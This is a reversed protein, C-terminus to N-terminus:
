YLLEQWRGGAKLEAQIRAWKEPGGAIESFAKILAAEMAKVGSVFIYTDPDRLLPWLSEAREELVKDLAVPDKLHPRPSLAQFAMYGESGFFSSLDNNTDNMYVLELGSSAGYFLRVQGQWGGEVDQLQGVLARFPAIGTGQAIMVLNAGSDAPLVFPTGYPGRIAIRDNALRDCLYSSAIGKYEEGSIDDIYSCRRVCISAEDWLEGPLLDVVTYLREHSDNGFPHPGPVNVGINFGLSLAMESPVKLKIERIEEPSDTPTLRKSALVTAEFELEGSDNTLVM